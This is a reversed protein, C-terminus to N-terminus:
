RQVSRARHRVGGAPGSGPGVRSRRDSGPQFAVMIGGADDTLAIVPDTGFGIAVPSAAAFGGRGLAVVMIIVALGTRCAKRGARRM